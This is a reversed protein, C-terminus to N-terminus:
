LENAHDMTRGCPDDSDFSVTCYPIGDQKLWPEWKSWAAANEIIGHILIVPPVHIAGNGQSAPMVIGNYCSSSQARVLTFHAAISTISFLLSVILAVGRIDLAEGM